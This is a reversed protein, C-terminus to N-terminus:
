PRRGIQRRTPCISVPRGALQAAPRLPPPRQEHLPDDGRDPQGQPYACAAREGARREARPERLYAGFALQGNARTPVLHYTRGDRFAIAKLFRAILERGQYELPAPPMTLWADETFLAIIGDVDGTEYARTLREILQKESASQPAPPPEAPEPLGNHMSARARKLASTM